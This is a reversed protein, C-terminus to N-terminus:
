GRFGVANPNVIQILMYCFSVLYFYAIPHRFAKWSDRKSSLQRILFGLFTTWLMLDMVAALPLDQSLFTQVLRGIQPLTWSLMLLVMYGVRFDVFCLFVFPLGIGAVSLMVGTKYGYRGILYALGLAFIIGFLYIIWKTKPL